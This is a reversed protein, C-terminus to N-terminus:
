ESKSESESEPEGYLFDHLAIKGLRPKREVYSQPCIFDVADRSLSNVDGSLSSYIYDELRIGKVSAKRNLNYWSGTDLIELIKEQTLNLQAQLCLLNVDRALQNGIRQFGKLIFFPFSM